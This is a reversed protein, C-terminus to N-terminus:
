EGWQPKYKKMLREHREKRPVANNREYERAQTSHGDEVSAARAFGEFMVLPDPHPAEDDLRGTIYYDWFDEWTVHNELSGNSVLFQFLWEAHERDTREKM